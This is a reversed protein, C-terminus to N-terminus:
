IIFQEAFKGFRIGMKRHGYQSLHLGDNMNRTYNKENRAKIIMGSYAYADFCPISWKECVAKMADVYDSLKLGINNTQEDSPTTETKNQAPSARYFPTCFVVTGDYYEEKLWRCMENLVGYFTNVDNSDITGLPVDYHYDNTGGQVFVGGTHLDMTQMRNYFSDTGSHYPSMSTGGFSYNKVSKIKCVTKAYEYWRTFYFTGPGLSDHTNDSNSDGLICIDDLIYNPETDFPLLKCISVNNQNSYIGVGFQHIISTTSTHRIDIKFFFNGDRYISLFYQDEWILEIENNLWNNVITNPNWDVHNVTGDSNFEAIIIGANQFGLAVFKGDNGKSISVWAPNSSITFRLRDVSTLEANYLGSINARNTKAGLITNDEFMFFVCKSNFNKIQPINKAPNQDYYVIENSITNYYVDIGFAVYGTHNFTSPFTDNVSVDAHTGIAVGMWEATKSYQEGTAYKINYCSALVYFDSSIYKNVPLTRNSDALIIGGKWLVKFDADVIYAIVGDDTPTDVEFRISRVFGKPYLYKQGIFEISAFTSTLDSANGKYAHEQWYGSNGSQLIANNVKLSLETYTEPLSNLIEQQKAYAHADYQQLKQTELNTLEQVADALQRAIDESHTEYWANLLGELRTKTAELDEIGQDITEQIHNYKAFFDKVVSIIWDMNLDHFNTYPLHEFTSM